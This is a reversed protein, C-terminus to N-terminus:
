LKELIVLLDFRFPRMLKGFQLIFYVKLSKLDHEIKDLSKMFFKGGV